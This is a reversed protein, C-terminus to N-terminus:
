GTFEPVPAEIDASASGPDLIPLPVSPTPDPIPTPDPFACWFPRSPDSYIPGGVCWIGNPICSSNKIWSLEGVPLQDTSELIQVTPCPNAAEAEPPPPLVALPIIFAALVAAIGILFLVRNRM